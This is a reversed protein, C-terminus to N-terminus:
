ILEKHMSSETNDANSKNTILADNPININIIKSKFYNSDKINSAGNQM